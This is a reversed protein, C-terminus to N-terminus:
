TTVDGTITVPGALFTHVVTRTADAFEVDWVATGPLLNESESPPLYLVFGGPVETQDMLTVTFTALPAGTSDASPRIQARGTMGTLTFLEEPDEDRIRFAEDFSDGRYIEIPWPLPTM